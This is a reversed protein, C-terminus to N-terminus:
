GDQQVAGKESHRLNTNIKEDLKLVADRLNKPALHAYRQTMAQSKHGLLRQVEYLAVGRQVLASAFCHRLDHFRFNQIGAENLANRFATKVEYYRRGDFTRKANKKKAAPHCFMNAESTGCRPSNKSYGWLLIMLRYEWDKVM